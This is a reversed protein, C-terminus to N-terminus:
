GNCGSGGNIGYGIQFYGYGQDLQLQGNYEWCYKGTTKDLVYITSNGDITLSGPRAIGFYSSFSCWVKDSVACSDSLTSNPQVQYNGNWNDGTFVCTDGESCTFDPSASRVGAQAHSVAAVTTAAGASVTLSGTGLAAAIAAAMIVLRRIVSV